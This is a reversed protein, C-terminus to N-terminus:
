DDAMYAYMDDEDMMIYDAAADFGDGSADTGSVSTATRIDPEPRNHGQPTSFMSYSLFGVLVVGATMAAVAWPRLRRIRIRRPSPVNEKGRQEETALQGMIRSPLGDFYDEPVTFPRRNGDDTQLRQESDM